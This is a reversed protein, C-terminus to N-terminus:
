VGFIAICASHWITRAMMAIAEQEGKVQIFGTGIGDHNYHGGMKARRLSSGAHIGKAHDGDHQGNGGNEGDNVVADDLQVAGDAHHQNREDHRQADDGGLLQAKDLIIHHGLKDAAEIEAFRQNLAHEARQKKAIGDVQAILVHPRAEHDDAHQRHNADDDGGEDDAIEDIERCARQVNVQRQHPTERKARDDRGGVRNRHNGDQAGDTNGFTQVHVDAALRQKVVADAEDGEGEKERQRHAPLRHARQFDRGEEGAGDEAADEEAGGVAIQDAFEDAENIILVDFDHQRQREDKAAELEGFMEADRGGDGDDDDAEDKGVHAFLHHGGGAANGHVGEPPHNALHQVGHQEDEDADEDQNQRHAARM